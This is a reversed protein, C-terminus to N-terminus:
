DYKLTPTKTSPSKPIPDSLHRLISLVRKAGFMQSNADLATYPDTASGPVTTPPMESQLLMLAHHCAHDFAVNLAIQKWTDAHGSAMWCEKATRM